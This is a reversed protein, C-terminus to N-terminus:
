EEKIYREKCSYFKKDIIIIEGAVIKSQSVVGTLFIIWVFSGIVAFVILFINKILESNNKM